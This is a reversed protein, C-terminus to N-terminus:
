MRYKVMLWEIFCPVQTYSSLFRSPCLHIDCNNRIQAQSNLPLANVSSNNFNFLLLGGGYLLSPYLSLQSIDKYIELTLEQVKGFPVSFMMAFAKSGSKCMQATDNQILNESIFSKWGQM